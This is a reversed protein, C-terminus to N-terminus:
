PTIIISIIGFQLSGLGSFTSSSTTGANAAREAAWLNYTGNGNLRRTWGAPAAANNSGGDFSVVVLEMSGNNAVTLAPSTTSNNTSGTAGVGTAGSYSIAFAENYSTGGGTVSYTSPESGGAIKWLFVDRRNNSGFGTYTAAGAATFGTCAMTNNDDSHAVIVILDGSVTGTPKAVTVNGGGSTGGIADASIARFTVTGGGGGAPPTYHALPLRRPM